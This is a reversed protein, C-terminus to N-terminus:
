STGEESMPSMRLKRELGKLKAQIEPRREENVLGLFALNLGYLARAEFHADDIRGLAWQVQAFQAGHQIQWAVQEPSLTSELLGRTRARRIVQSLIGISHAMPEVPSPHGAIEGELWALIMPRFLESQRGMERVTHRVLSRCYDLPDDPSADKPLAAEMRDRADLTLAKLIEERTGWLNYLTNVSLSAEEALKRMSLAGLGGRSLLVRAAQLIQQRRVEVNRERLGAASASQDSSRDSHLQSM